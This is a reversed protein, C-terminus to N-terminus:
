VLPQQEVLNNNCVGAWITILIFWIVTYLIHEGCFMKVAVRIETQIIEIEWSGMM